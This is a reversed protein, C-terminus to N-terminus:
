SKVKVVIAGSTNQGVAYCKTATACAVGSFASGSYTSPSGPTGNSVVVSAPKAASGSGTFGAVVCHNVSFCALSTGNFGGGITAMTGIAGTTPNVPFLEDTVSPSVSSNGALAYCLKNKYCSIKQVYNGAPLAHSAGLKGGSLLLISTVPAQYDSLLCLTISSCAIAGSGTGPGTIKALVKGAASIHAVLATSSGPSGQFGVAWCNKRSACAVSGIADLGTPPKPRATIKMAGTAVSVTMVTDVTVAICSTAGAACGLGEPITNALSGTWAKVAGTAATIVASKGSGSSDSGIAVCTTITPCAVGGLSAVGPVPTTVRPGAATSALATTTTAAAGACAVIGAVATALLRGFRTKFVPLEGRESGMM